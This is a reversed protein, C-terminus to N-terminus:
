TIFNTLSKRCIPPKRWISRDGGGIFRLAVIYSYYQQFHRQFVMIRVRSLVQDHLLYISPHVDFTFLLALQYALHM